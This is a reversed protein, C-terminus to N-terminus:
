QFREVPVVNFIERLAAGHVAEFDKFALNTNSLAWVGRMFLPFTTKNEGLVPENSTTYRLRIPSTPATAPASAPAASSDPTAM